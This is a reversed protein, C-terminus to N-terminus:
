ILRYEFKCMGTVEWSGFTGAGCGCATSNSVLVTWPESPDFASSGHAPNDKVCGFLPAIIENHKIVECRRYFWSCNLRADSLQHTGHPNHKYDNDCYGRCYHFNVKCKEKHGDPPYHYVYKTLQKPECVSGQSQTFYMVFFLFAVGAICSLRGM